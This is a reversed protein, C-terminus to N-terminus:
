DTTDAYELVTNRIPYDTATEMTNIVENVGQLVQRKRQRQQSGISSDNRVDKALCQTTKSLEALIRAITKAWPPAEDWHERRPQKRTTRHGHSSSIHQRVVRNVEDFATRCGLNEDCSGVDHIALLV